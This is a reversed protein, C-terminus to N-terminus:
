KTELLVNPSESNMILEVNPKVIAAEDLCFYLADSVGDIRLRMKGWTYAQNGVTDICVTLNM